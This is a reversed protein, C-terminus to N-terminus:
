DSPLHTVAEFTRKRRYNRNAMEHGLFRHGLWTNLGIEEGHGQGLPQRLHSGNTKVYIQDLVLAAIFRGMPRRGAVDWRVVVICTSLGQITLVFTGNCLRIAFPLRNRTACVFRNLPVVVSDDTM